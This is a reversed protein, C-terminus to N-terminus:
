YLVKLIKFRERILIVIWAFFAGIMGLIMDKQADWQDGQMGLFNTGIIESKTTLLSLYEIVEYIGKLGTVILFIIFYLWFGRIGVKKSIFEYAPFYFIFGFIFHVFRDYNNRELNFNDKILDFLPVETYSFHGGIAHLVLLIFLLSYTFNSFKFRKYTLILLFVFVITLINEYAWAIRYRPNIALLIWIILFLVLM